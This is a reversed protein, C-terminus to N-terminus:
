VGEGTEALVMGTSKNQTLSPPLSRLMSEQFLRRRASAFTTHYPISPIPILEYGNITFICLGYVVFGIWDTELVLSELRM